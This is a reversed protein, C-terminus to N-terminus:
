SKSRPFISRVVCLILWIGTAIVWRFEWGFCLTILKIFECTIIWSLGYLGILILIAVAGYKMIDKM